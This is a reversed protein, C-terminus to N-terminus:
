VSKQALIRVNRSTIDPDMFRTFKLIHFGSSRIVNQLDNITEEAIDYFTDRSYDYAGITIFFYGLPKLIQQISNFLSKFEQITNKESVFIALISTVGDFSSPPLKHLDVFFNGKVFTVLYRFKVEDETMDFRDFTTVKFGSKVLFKVMGSTDGGSGLDAISANKPLLPNLESYDLLETYTRQRGSYVWEEYKLFLKVSIRLFDTLEWVEINNKQLTKHERHSFSQYVKEKLILLKKCNTFSNDRFNQLIIDVLTKRHAYCYGICYRTRRDSRKRTVSILFLPDNTPPTSYWSTLGLSTVLHIMGREAKRKRGSFFEKKWYEIYHEESHM